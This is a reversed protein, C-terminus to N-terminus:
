LTIVIVIFKRVCLKAREIMMLGVGSNGQMDDMLEVKYFIVMKM